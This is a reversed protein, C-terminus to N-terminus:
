IMTEVSTKFMSLVTPHIDVATSANKLDFIKVADDFIDYFFFKVSIDKQPMTYLKKMLYRSISLLNDNAKTM